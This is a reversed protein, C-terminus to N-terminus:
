KLNIRAGLTEDESEKEVATLVSTRKVGSYTRTSLWLMSLVAAKWLPCPSLPEVALLM